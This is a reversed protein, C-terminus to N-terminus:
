SNSANKWPGCLVKIKVIYNSLVWYFIVVSFVVEEVRTCAVSADYTSPIVCV